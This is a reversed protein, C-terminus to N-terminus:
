VHARGIEVRVRERMLGSESFLGRVEGLKRAYRGDLPSLADTFSTSM